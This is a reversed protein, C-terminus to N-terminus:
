SGPPATLWWSPERSPKLRLATWMAPCSRATSSRRCSWISPRNPRWDNPEKEHTETWQGVYFWLPNSMGTPTLLRLERDGVPADAALQIQVTLEESIQPNPQRKTDAQRKRYIAM